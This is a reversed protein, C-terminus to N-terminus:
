LDDFVIFANEYENLHTIEDTIEKIKIKSNSYQELPLKTIIYFDRDRMRSLTEFM